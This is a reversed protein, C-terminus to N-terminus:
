NSPRITVKDRSKESNQRLSKGTVTAGWVSEPNFAQRAAQSRAANADATPALDREGHHCVREQERATIGFGRRFGRAVALAATSKVLAYISLQRL